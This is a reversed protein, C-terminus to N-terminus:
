GPRAASVLKVHYRRLGELFPEIDRVRELRLAAPDARQGFVTVWVGEAEATAIWEEGVRALDFATPAGDVPVSVTTWATPRADLEEERRQMWVAMEHAPLGEPPVPFSRRGLGLHPTSPVVRRDLSSEVRIVSGVQDQPDGFCLDVSSLAGDSTGHGGLMREGRWSAVGFLAFPVARLLREMARQHRTHAGRPHVIDLIQPRLRRSRRPGTFITTLYLLWAVVVAAVAFVGVTWWPWGLTPTVVAGIAAGVAATIVYIRPVPMVSREDLLARMLRWPVTWARHRRMTYTTGMWVQEEFGCPRWRRARPRNRSFRGHELWRRVVSVASPREILWDVAGCNPCPLKARTDPMM